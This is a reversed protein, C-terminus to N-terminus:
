GLPCEPRARSLRPGPLLRAAEQGALAAGRSRGEGAPPPLDLHDRHPRRAPGLLERVPGRLLRGAPRGSPVPLRREPAKGAVPAQLANELAPHPTDRIVAARARGFPLPPRGRIRPERPLLPLQPSRSRESLRGPGLTGPQDPAP